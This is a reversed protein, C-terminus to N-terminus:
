WAADIGKYLEISNDGTKAGFRGMGSDKYMNGCTCTDGFRPDLSMYYNCVPCRAYIDKSMTWGREPGKRIFEYKM